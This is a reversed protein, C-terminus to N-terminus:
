RVINKTNLLELASNMTDLLEGLREEHDKDSKIEVKILSGFDEGFDAVLYTKAEHKKKDTENM